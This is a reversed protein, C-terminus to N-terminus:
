HSAQAPRRACGLALGGILLLPLLLPMAGAGFLMPMRPFKMYVAEYDELEKWYEQYLRDYELGAQEIQRQLALQRPDDEPVGQSFLAESQEYLPQLMEGPPQPEQKLAAEQLVVNSTWSHLILRVNRPPSLHLLLFRAANPADFRRGAYHLPRDLLAPLLALGSYLLLAAVLLAIRAGPRLLGLVLAGALLLVVPALFSLPDYGRTQSYPARLHYEFFHQVAYVGAAPLVLLVCRLARSRLTEQLLLAWALPLLVASLFCLCLWALKALWLARRPDGYWPYNIEEMVWQEGYPLQIYLCAALWLPLSLLFCRLPLLGLELARHLFLQLSSVPLPLEGAQEAAAAARRGAPSAALQPVLWQALVYAATFVVYFAALWIALQELDRSMHRPNFPRLITLLTLALPILLGAATFFGQGRAALVRAAVRRLLEWNLAPQRSSPAAPM